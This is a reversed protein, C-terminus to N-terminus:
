IVRRGKWNSPLFNGTVGTFSVYLFYLFQSLVFVRLLRSENFFKLIKRLFLYDVISKITFLLLGLIVFYLNFFSFVICLLISLNILLVILAIIIIAPDSYYKSKSVWRLRQHIYESISNKPKVSIIADTSKLFMLKKPYKRKLDLLLFIDDGSASRNELTGISEFYVDREVALNAGNLMVPNQIGFSGATSGMLSFFELSQFKNFFGQTPEIIVPGAILVPKHKLYFSVITSVWNRRAECDADTFILLKGKAELSAIELAKKKGMMESDLSILRSNSISAIFKKVLEASKDSSHDDCFIIEHANIPYTQERLSNFLTPLNKEENRFAIIISIFIEDFNKTLKYEAISNWGRLLWIILLTYLFCISISFIQFTIM